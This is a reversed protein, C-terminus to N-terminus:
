NQDPKEKEAEGEQAKQADKQADEQAKQQREQAKREREQARQQRKRERQLRAFAQGGKKARAKRQEATMQRATRAARARFFASLVPKMTRENGTVTGEYLQVAKELMAQDAEKTLGRVRELREWFKKSLKPFLAMWQDLDM